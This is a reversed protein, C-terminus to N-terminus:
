MKWNDICYRTGCRGKREQLWWTQTDNFLHQVINPNIMEFFKTGSTKHHIWDHSLLLTRCGKWVIRNQKKEVQVKGLLILGTSDTFKNKQGNRKTKCLRVLPHIQQPEQSSPCSKLIHINVREYVLCNSFPEVVKELCSGLYNSIDKWSPATDFWRLEQKSAGVLHTVHM